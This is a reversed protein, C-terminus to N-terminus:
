WNEKVNLTMNVSGSTSVARAYIVFHKQEILPTRVLSKPNGSQGFPTGGADMRMKQVWEASSIPTNTATGPSLNQEILTEGSAQDTIAEFVSSGLTPNLAIAFRVDVDSLAEISHLFSLAYPYVAARRVALVPTWDTTNIATSGKEVSTLRFIPDYRGIVSIQRGTAYAIFEGDTDTTIVECRVPLHPQKISTEGAPRLTGLDKFWKDAATNVQYNFKIPGFGYWSFSIHYVFGTSPVIEDRFIDSKQVTIGDAQWSGWKTRTDVGGRRKVLYLGNADYEYFFGDNDDYEGIRAKQGGVPKNPLRFGIGSEVEQGPPYPAREATDLVAVNSGVTPALKFEGDVSSVNGSYIDRIASLGYISKQEIIPTREVVRLEDFFSKLFKM